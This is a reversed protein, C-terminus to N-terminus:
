PKKKRKRKTKEIASLFVTATGSPEANIGPLEDAIQLFKSSLVPKNQNLRRLLRKLREFVVIDIGYTSM